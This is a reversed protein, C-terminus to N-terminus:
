VWEFLRISYQKGSGGLAVGFGPLLNWRVAGTSHTLSGDFVGGCVLALSKRGSRKRQIYTFIGPRDPLQAAVKVPGAKRGVPQFCVGRQM